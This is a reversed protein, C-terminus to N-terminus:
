GPSHLLYISYMWISIPNISVVEPCPITRKIEHLYHFYNERMKIM